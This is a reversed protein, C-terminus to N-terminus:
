MPLRYNYDNICTISQLEEALWGSDSRRIKELFADKDVDTKFRGAVFKVCDDWRIATVTWGKEVKSGDLPCYLINEAPRFEDYYKECGSCSECVNRSSCCTCIYKCNRCKEFMM